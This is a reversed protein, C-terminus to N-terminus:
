VGDIDGADEEWPFRAMHTRAQGMPSPSLPIPRSYSRVSGFSRPQRMGGAESAGGGRPPPRRWAAATEAVRRIAGGGVTKGAVPGVVDSAECGLKSQSGDNPSTPNAIPEADELGLREKLVEIADIDTVKADTIVTHFIATPTVDGRAKTLKLYARGLLMESRRTTKQSLNRLEKRVAKEPGRLATQEELGRQLGIELKMRKSM